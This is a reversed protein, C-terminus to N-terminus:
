SRAKSPSQTLPVVIKLQTDMTSDVLSWFISRFMHDCLYGQNIVITVFSFYEHIHSFKTTLTLSHSVRPHHLTAPPM